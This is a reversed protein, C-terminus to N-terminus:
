GKCLGRIGISDLSMVIPVNIIVYMSEQCEDACPTGPPKAIALPGADGLVGVRLRWPLGQRGGCQWLEWM